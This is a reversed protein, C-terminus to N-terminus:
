FHYDILVVWLKAAEEATAPWEASYPVLEVPKPVIVGERSWV